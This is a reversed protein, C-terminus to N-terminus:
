QDLFALQGVGEIVFGEAQLNAKENENLPGLNPDKKAIMSKLQRANNLFGKINTVCYKIPCFRLTTNVVRAPMGIEELRLLGSTYLHIMQYTIAGKKM